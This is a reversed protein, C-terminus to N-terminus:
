WNVDPSKNDFIEGLRRRVAPVTGEPFDKAAFFGQEVIEANPKPVSPQEWDRVLFFAIHDCPFARFNAYINILVPAGVLNVGVEEKLERELATRITENKEVGGGPFHWGPRYGHRVLLVRNQEDLVAAQAGLTLARTLRWYRQLAKRVLWEFRVGRETEM